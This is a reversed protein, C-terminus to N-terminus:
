IRDLGDVWRALVANTESDPYVAPDGSAQTMSAPYGRKRLATIAAPWQAGEVSKGRVLAQIQLDREPANDPVSGLPPADILALGKVLDPQRFAVVAAMRAGLGQGVFVIRRDDVPYRERLHKILDLLFEEDNPSWGQGTARPAVVILGRRDAEGTWASFLPQEQPNLPPHLYVVLGLPQDPHYSAPVYFQYDRDHGALTESLRGTKAEAPQDQMGFVPHSPLEAPVTEPPAAITVTVESIAGGRLITLPLMTGLRQRSILERLAQASAVAAGQVHTIVDRPQLGAAAAPSDPWVFRIAVGTTGPARSPAIGLSGPTYPLLEGTLKAEVPVTQEGRRVEFRVVDGAYKTGFVQRFEAMRTIAQGDITVVRDDALLGAEEAPSGFRVRDIIPEGQLLDKGRFSVGLLGPLLDEGGKLREVLPLLDILPVAFGIGSDYWEVGATDSSEHPSLPALIGLVRGQVDVLPGGYNVPSIKADTQLAKGWVRNLASVIGVSVSPTEADFTRGLAIAWQGVRFSERPAAPPVPLREADVKLLTIMRQRDTAIQRAAFRRGDPLTVLISTPESVFHFAASLLYGEEGIILGTTAGASVLGPQLQERGGVTDIRVVSPAVLAAAQQIARETLAEADGAALCCIMLWAATM